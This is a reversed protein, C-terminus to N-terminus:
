VSSHVSAQREFVQTVSAQREFVQTFRHREKLCNLSCISKM